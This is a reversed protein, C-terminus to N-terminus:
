AAELDPRHDLRAELEVLRRAVTVPQRGSDRARELDKRMVHLERSVDVRQLKARRHADAMRAEMTLERRITQAHEVQAAHRLRDYTKALDAQADVIAKSPCEPEDLISTGSAIRDVVEPPDGAIPLERLPQTAIKGNPALFKRAPERM